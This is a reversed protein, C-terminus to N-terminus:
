QAKEGNEVGGLEQLIENYADIMGLFYQDPIVGIEKLRVQCKQAVGIKFEIVKIEEATLTLGEKLRGVCRKGFLFAVKENVEAM